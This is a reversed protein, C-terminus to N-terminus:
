SLEIKDGFAGRLRLIEAFKQEGDGFVHAHQQDLEGVPQVIHARQMEHRRVLARPDRLFREINIRREGAAHAHLPHAVLELIQGEAMEHRVGIRHDLRPELIQACFFPLIM